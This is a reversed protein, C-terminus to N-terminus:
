IYKDKFPTYDYKNIYDFIDQPNKAIYYLNSFNHDAFNQNYIDEYFKFLNNFFYGTNLFIIPKSHYKLQKLTIVESIEELTGFGGPLAIFVDAKKRMMAKRTNMDKTIIIKDDTESIVGKIKLAVPIIGIVKGREKQVSRAVEGMIGIRGGGHILNYKNLGILKGLKRAEEYYIMSLSDSSSCFVCINKKM